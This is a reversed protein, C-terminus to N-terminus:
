FDFVLSLRGIRPPINELVNFYSPGTINQVRLIENANFLNFVDARFGLRGWDLNHHKVVRLSTVHQSELQSAGFKEMWITQTGQNRFDSLGDPDTRQFRARRTVPFGSLSQYMLGVQVDWPFVYSGHAKLSWEYTEDLANIRIQPPVFEALSSNAIHLRNNFTGIYSILGQWGDRLRRELTFEMSHYSNPEPYNMRQHGVFDAGRFEDGYDAFNIIQGSDDSTDLVGDPGPDRRSVPVTYASLPRFINPGGGVGSATSGTTDFLGAERKYVYVARAAVSPMLEHQIGLSVEQTNSQALERDFRPDNPLIANAAGTIDVFDPGNLDLNVEGPTYTNDPISDRWVYTASAIANLNFSSSFSDGLSQQFYNYAGRVVTRGDGRLDYALGIRPALGKWDVVDLRDAQGQFFLGFDDPGKFQEPVYSSYHDYRLGVNATLRRTVRWEDTVYASNVDVRNTPDVPYNYLVVRSPNGAMGTEFLTAGEYQLQFNGGDHSAQGTGHTERYMQVGTKIAHAGGPYYTFSGLYQWRNRPRRDARIASGTYVRSVRDFRTATDVGPRPMYNALYYHRGLTLTYVIKNSPTGTYEVKGTQPNFIYDNTTELPRFQTGFREPMVKGSRHYFANMRNGQSLQFTTKITQSNLERRGDGRGDETTDDPTLYIGDPGGDIAFNVENQAKRQRKYDGYFWIRDRWIPGGLSGSLDSYDKFSSGRTVGREMLAADLNDSQMRRDQYAGFYRGHFQNTGSKIIAAFNMGATAIEATNGVATITVEELSAYDYYSGMSSTYQRTNIGDLTPTIQGRQGYAVASQYNAMTSGGVDIRGVRMGPAMAMLEFQSGSNPISEIVERTLTQVTAASTVDVIPSEGSVTITEQVTSLELEINIRATFRDTLRLGERIVTSFGPLEFTVTYTGIGLNTFRYAGDGDTVRTIQTSQPSELTATVGPLVAGTADTVIGEISSANVVQARADSAGVLTLTLGLSVALGTRGTRFMRYLM